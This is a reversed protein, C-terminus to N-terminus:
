DFRWEFSVVFCDDDDDDDDYASEERVLSHRLAYIFERM